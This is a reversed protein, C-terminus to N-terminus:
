LTSALKEVTRIQYSNFFLRFTSRIPCSSDWCLTCSFVSLLTILAGSYQDSIGAEVNASGKGDACSSKSDNARDRITCVMLVIGSKLDQQSELTSSQFNYILNSLVTYTAWSFVFDYLFRWIIVQLVTDDVKHQLTWWIITYRMTGCQFIHRWRRHWINM